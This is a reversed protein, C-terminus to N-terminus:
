WGPVRGTRGPHGLCYSEASAVPAFLYASAFFVGVGLGMLKRM